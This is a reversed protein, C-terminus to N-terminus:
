RETCLPAVVADLVQRADEPSLGILFGRKGRNVVILPQGLASEDLAAPVPRRHGFPSIGGVHYGTTKEAKEPQMMQASKGGAAAAVRKMSLTRDVPVIARVGAGDVEALLTKFVRDASLGIARPPKCASGTMRGMTTM